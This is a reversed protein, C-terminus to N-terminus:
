RAIIYFIAGVFPPLNNHPQGGGRAGLIDPSPLGPLETPLEGSAQVPLHVHTGHDHIPMEDTTLTHQAEGGMSGPITDAMPFRGTLNPLYFTKETENKLSVDLADFLEPYEMASYETGDFPLGYDPITGWTMEITGIRDRMSEIVGVSHKACEDPTMDGFQEWKEAECLELLAGTISEELYAPFTFLRTKLGPEKNPTLFRAQAARM